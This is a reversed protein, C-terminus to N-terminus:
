PVLFPIVESIILTAGVQGVGCVGAAIVLSCVVIGAPIEAMQTQPM